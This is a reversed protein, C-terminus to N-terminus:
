RTTWDVAPALWALEAHTALAPVASVLRHTKRPNLYKKLLILFERKRLRLFYSLLDGFGTPIIEMFAHFDDPNREACYRTWVDLDSRLISVRCAFTMTTSDTERWHSTKTVSLRTKRLGNWNMPSGGDAELAYKDPHDYLTAYDAITLGELLAAKSGSLHIYDDELLYVIDDDSREALIREAMHIFSASNGLSTEECSLGRARIADVTEPLCNDAIVFFGESGFERLACDLCEIKGANPLKEKPNGKDSIRYYVHM